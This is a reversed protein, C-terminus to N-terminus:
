GFVYTGPAPGLSQRKETQPKRLGSSHDALWASWEPWWSGQVLEAREMWATAPVHHQGETKTLLRYHRNKHGPESLVGSNHGGSTLCFTVDTDTLLQLKFVSSWPSVHDAETALCFIPMRLDTLAVHRGDVKFQGKALRNQLFMQRLYESHMRAPMRTADANWAMLDNMPTREGLLYHRVVRSWILDTSRLMRFAGAMQDARLYGQTAMIDELFAVQNENIFLSLEGPESFDVQAALVSMSCLRADHDRAMAAAGAALLTGGLCYGVAHVRGDPRPAVHDLAGFLGLSLYDELSLHADTKDPNKWSIIYVEFGQDRLYAVLSNHESLDLIYYKMIWAPVILIPEAQVKDTTPRYRILEILRNQYVVDGETVAITEGVRYDPHVKPTQSIIQNFDELWNQWGQVFNQGRQELTKGLVDPNTFAFNAPSITDLIQRAAFAVIRQHAPDVGAIPATAEQWWAEQLHFWHRLQTYPPRNWAASAFRKDPGAAETGAWTTAWAEFAKSWGSAVLQMQREPSGVLHLAWDLWATSLATPSLGGTSRGIASHLIRDLNRDAPDDPM